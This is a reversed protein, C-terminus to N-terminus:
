QQLNLFRRFSINHNAVQFNTKRSGAGVQLTLLPPPIKLKTTM